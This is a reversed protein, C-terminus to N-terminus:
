QLVCFSGRIFDIIDTQACRNCRYWANTEPRVKSPDRYFTQGCERCTAYDRSDTGAAPEFATAIPVARPPLQASPYVSGAVVAPFLVQFGCVPCSIKSRLHNDICQAHFLHGCSTQKVVSKESLGKRCQACQASVASAGTKADTAPIYSRPPIDAATQPMSTASAIPVMNMTGVIACTIALPSNDRAGNHQIKATVHARHTNRLNCWVSQWWWVNAM